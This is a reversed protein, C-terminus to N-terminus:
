YLVYSDGGTIVMSNSLKDVAENEASKHDIVKLLRRNNNQSLYFM